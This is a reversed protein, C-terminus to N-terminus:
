SNYMLGMVKEYLAKYPCNEDDNDIYEYVACDSFITRLIIIEEETLEIM